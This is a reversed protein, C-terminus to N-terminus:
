FARRKRDENHYVSLNGKGPLLIIKVETMPFRENQFAALERRIGEVRVTHTVTNKYSRLFGDLVFPMLSKCLNQRLEEGEEHEGMKEQQPSFFLEILPDLQTETLDIM